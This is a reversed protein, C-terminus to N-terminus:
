RRQEKRCHLEMQRPTYLGVSVVSLAVTAVTQRTRVLTAEGSPCVDRVDVGRSGIMGFAFGNVWARYVQPRVAHPTCGASLAACTLVLAIGL